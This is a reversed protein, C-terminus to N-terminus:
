CAANESCSIICYRACSRCSRRWATMNNIKNIYILGEYVPVSTITIIINSYNIVTMQRYSYVRNRFEDFHRKTKRCTCKFYFRMM